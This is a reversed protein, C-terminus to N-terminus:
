ETNLARNFAKKWLRAKMSLSMGAHAPSTSPLYKVPIGIDKYRARFVSYSKNGNCFVARIYHCNKVLFGIDNFVPDTINGDSASARRCSYIVDWLGIRSKKLAALRDRYSRPAEAGIAGFIIDWFQNRHYAYYQRKKLSVPGPFSGLVLIRTKEDFVPALGKLRKHAALAKNM